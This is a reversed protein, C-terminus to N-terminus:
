GERVLVTEDLEADVGVMTGGRGDMGVQGVEEFPFGLPQEVSRQDHHVAVVARLVHNHRAGAFGGLHEQQIELHHVQAIRYNSRAKM